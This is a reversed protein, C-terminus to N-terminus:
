MAATSGNQMAAAHACKSALLQVGIHLHHATSSVPEIGGPLAGPALWPQTLFAGRALGSNFSVGPLPRCSRVHETSSRKSPTTLDLLTAYSSIEAVAKLLGHQVATQRKMLQIGKAFLNTYGGCSVAVASMYAPKLVVLCADNLM